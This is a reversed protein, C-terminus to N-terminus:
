NCFYLKSLPLIHCRLDIIYEMTTMPNLSENLTERKLLLRGCNDKTEILRKKLNSIIQFFYKFNLFICPNTFLTVHIGTTGNKLM